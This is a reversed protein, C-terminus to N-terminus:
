RKEPRPASWVPKGVGLSGLMCIKKKFIRSRYYLTASLDVSYLISVNLVYSSNEVPPTSQQGATTIRL